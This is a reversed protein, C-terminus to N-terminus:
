QPQQDVEFRFRGDDDTMEVTAGIKEGNPATITCRYREGKKAKMEDPCSVEKPRVNRLEVLKDAIQKEADGTDLTKEGCAALGVAAAALALAAARRAPKRARVPM